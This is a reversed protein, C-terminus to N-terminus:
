GGFASYRRLGRAFVIRNAAFLLGVWASGVALYTWMEPGAHKGLMLSAPFYALYPFPLYMM